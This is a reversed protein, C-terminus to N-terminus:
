KADERLIVHLKNQKDRVEDKCAFGLHEASALHHHGTLLAMAYMVSDLPTMNRGIGRGELGETDAGMLVRSHPAKFGDRFRHGYPKDLKRVLTPVNAQFHARGCTISGMHNIFGHIREDSGVVRVLSSDGNALHSLRKELM